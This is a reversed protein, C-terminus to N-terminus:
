GHNNRAQAELAAIRTVMAADALEGGEDFPGGGDFSDTHLGAVSATPPSQSFVPAGSDGKGAALAYRLKNGQVQAAGTAGTLEGFYGFAYGALAIKPQPAGNLTLGAASSPATILVAFDRQTDWAWSRASVSQVPNRKADYGAFAGVATPQAMLINHAATVVVDPKIFFGTAFGKYVGNVYFCLFAISRAPEQKPDPVDNRTLQKGLRLISKLFNSLPRHPADAPAIQEFHASGSTDEAM